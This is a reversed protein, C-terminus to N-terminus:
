IRIMLYKVAVLAIAYTALNLTVLLHGYSLKIGQLHTVIDDMNVMTDAPETTKNFEILTTTNLLSDLQNILIVVDQKDIDVGQM